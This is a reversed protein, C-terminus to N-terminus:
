ILCLVKNGRLYYMAKIFLEPDDNFAGLIKNCGLCLLGRIKGTKHDHDVCFYLRPVGKRMGSCTAHCIACKGLQDDLIEYYQELTIGYKKFLLRKAKQERIKVRNKKYYKNFYDPDDTVNM